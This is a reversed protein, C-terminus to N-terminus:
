GGFIRALFGKKQTAERADRTEHYELLKQTGKAQEQWDKASTKLDEIRADYNEKLERIRADLSAKETERLAKENALQRQVTELRRLTDVHAMAGNKPTERQEAQEIPATDARSNQETRPVSAQETKNAIEAPEPLKLSKYVRMLEAVQIVPSGEHDKEFSLEGAKNHRYLTGRSKGVLRAAESISVTGGARFLEPSNAATDSQEIQEKTDNM